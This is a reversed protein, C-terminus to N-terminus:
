KQEQQKCIKNKIWTNLYKEAVEDANHQQKNSLLKYGGRFISPVGTEICMSSQGIWAVRNMSHNSLFQDCSHPWRKFVKEIAVSFRDVDSLFYRYAELAEDKTMGEPPVSNFFGAKYCEWKWWPHYVRSLSKM